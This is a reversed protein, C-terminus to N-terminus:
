PQAEQRSERYVASLDAAVTLGSGAEYRLVRDGLQEEPRVESENVRRVLGALDMARYSARDPLILMEHVSSPLVFYSGGAVRAIQEAIGPYFLAAAGCVTQRTTLVLIQPPRAPPPAAFLDQAPVDALIAALDRLVPPRNKVSSELAAEFLREGDLGLRKALRGTLHVLTGEGDELSFAAFATLAYGCGVRRHVLERLAEEQMKEDVLRVGLRDRINELTKEPEDKM